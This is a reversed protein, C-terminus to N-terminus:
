FIFGIYLDGQYNTKSFFLARKVKNPQRDVGEQFVKLKRLIIFFSWKQWGLQLLKLKIDSFSFLWLQRSAALRWGWDSVTDWASITLPCTKRWKSFMKVIFDKGIFFNSLLSSELNCGHLPRQHSRVAVFFLWGVFGLDYNKAVKLTKYSQSFIRGGYKKKHFIFNEALELNQAWTKFFTNLSKNDFRSM